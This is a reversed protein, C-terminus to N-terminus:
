IDLESPFTLPSCISHSIMMHSIMHSWGIHLKAPGALNSGLLQISKCIALAVSVKPLLLMQLEATGLLRCYHKM